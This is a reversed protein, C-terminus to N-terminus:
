CEAILFYREGILWALGYKGSAITSPILNKVVIADGDSLSAGSDIQITAPGSGYSAGSRATITGSTKVIFAQSGAETAEVALGRPIIGGSTETFQIGSGPQFLV